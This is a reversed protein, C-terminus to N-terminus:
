FFKCIQSSGTIIHCTLYLLGKALLAIVIGVLIFGLSKSAIGTKKTDGSSTVYQYGVYILLFLAVVLLAFFFWNLLTGILPLIEIEKMQIKNIDEPKLALALSPLIM